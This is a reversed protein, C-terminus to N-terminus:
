DHGVHAKTCVSLDYGPMSINLQRSDSHRADFLVTTLRAYTHRDRCETGTDNLTLLQTGNPCTDTYGYDNFSTDVTESDPQLKGTLKAGYKSEHEVYIYVSSFQAFTPFALMGIQFLNM